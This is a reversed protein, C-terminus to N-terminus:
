IDAALIKSSSARHLKLAQHNANTLWSCLWDCDLIEDFYECDFVILHSVIMNRQLRKWKQKNMRFLFLTTRWTSLSFSRLILLTRLILFDLIKCLIFYLEVVLTTIRAIDDNTKIRSAVGAMLTGNLILWNFCSNRVDKRETTNQRIMQFIIITYKMFRWFWLRMFKKNNRNM